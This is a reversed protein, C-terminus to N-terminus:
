ANQAHMQLSRATRQNSYYGICWSSIGFMLAGVMPLHPRCKNMLGALSFFIGSVATCATSKNLITKSQTQVQEPERTDDESGIMWSPESLLAIVPQVPPKPGNHIAVGKSHVSALSPLSSLALKAIETALEKRLHDAVSQLEREHTERVQAPFDEFEDVLDSVDSQIGILYWIDEGTLVDKAVRLGRVDLLNYFPEGSKCRNHLLCSFPRGTQVCRRLDCRQLHDMDCDRNLFRCNKGIVEKCSYGTLQEFEPSIAVLPADPQSPDAISVSFTCSSVARSAAAQAVYDVVTHSILQQVDDRMSTTQGVMPMEHPLLMMEYAQGQCDVLAYYPGEELPKGTDISLVTQYNLMLHVIGEPTYLMGMIDGEELEWPTTERNNWRPKPGEFSMVEGNKAKVLATKHIAKDRRHAQFEGGICVSRACWEARCPYGLSLMENPSVQTVGLLPWSANWGDVLVGELRMAFFLGQPGRRLAKDGLVVCGNPMELPERRMVTCRDNLLIVRETLAGAFFVPRDSYDGQWSRKRPPLFDLMKEEFMKATGARESGAHIFAGVEAILVRQEHKIRVIEEKSGKDPLASQVGVLFPHQHLMVLGVAFMNVFTEGDRTRNTQCASTSGMNSLGILRCMRIMSRMDKRGSRSITEGPVDKLLIRCNHGLVEKRTYGSLTVFADSLGIIPCDPVLADAIVVPKAFSNVLFGVKNYLLQTSDSSIQRVPRLRGKEM